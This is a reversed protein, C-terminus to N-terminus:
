HEDRVVAGHAFKRETRELREPSEPTASPTAPTPAADAPASAAPPKMATNPPEATAADGPGRAAPAAALQPATRPAPQSTSPTNALAAGADEGGAKWLVAGTTLLFGLAITIAILYRQRM